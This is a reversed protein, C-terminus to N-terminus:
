INLGLNKLTAYIVLLVMWYRPDKFELNAYKLLIGIFIGLVLMNTINNM